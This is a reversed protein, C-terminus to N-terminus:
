AKRVCVYNIRKATGTALQEAAKGAAHCAAESGFEATTLANSHNSALPGVHAFLVLIFTASM